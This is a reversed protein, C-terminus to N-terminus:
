NGRFEARVAPQCLKWAIWGHLAAVLLACVWLVARMARQMSALMPDIDGGQRNMWEIVHGFLAAGAFGGLAGLLLFAIFALRAWERRQLLGWSVWAFLASSLLSLLNLAQLHAFMWLLAPPLEVGAQQLPQLMTEPRLLPLTLAQMLGSAVGLAGMALSIWAMVTVFASRSAAAPLRPPVSM